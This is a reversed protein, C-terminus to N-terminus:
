VEDMKEDTFKEVLKELEFLFSFAEHESRCSFICVPTNTKSSQGNAILQVDHVFSGDTLKTEKFIFDM